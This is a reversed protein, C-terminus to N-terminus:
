DDLALDIIQTLELAGAPPLALDSPRPAPPPVANAPPTWAASPASPTGVGHAAPDTVKGIDHISACSAALLLTIAAILKPNLM